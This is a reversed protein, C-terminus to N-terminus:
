SQFGTLFASLCHPVAELNYGGEQVLVTPLSLAAFREGIQRYADTTLRLGRSPDDIHADFGMSVVLADPTKLLAEELATDLAALYANDETDGPLPVNRTFGTGPGAGREEAHGWFYPHYHAPDRHLSVFHVDNREYFIDQTGNGHHVDIDVLLVRRAESLLTQAAVAANNLYTAGGGCDRGAHHGSPRCLAYAARDGGLVAKAATEAITAAELAAAFTHEHIPALQDHMHLGVRAAPDDPYRDGTRMTPFVNPFIGDPPTGYAAVWDAYINRLFAVYRPSHVGELCAERAETVEVREWGCREAAAALLGPRAAVDNSRRPQSLSFVTPLHHLEHKCGAFYRM